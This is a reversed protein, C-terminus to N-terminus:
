VRHRPERRMPILPPSDAVQIRGIPTFGHRQYLPVNRPSTAELYAIRGEADCRAAAQTMLQSGYGRGQAGPDVGILPLYWHPESPHFQAMTEFMQGLQGVREDPLTAQLIAEIGADDMPAGPQLWLAIGLQDSTRLATGDALAQGAFAMTFAPMAELYQKSDPWCWRVVPDAAFALTITHLARDESHLLDRAALAAATM